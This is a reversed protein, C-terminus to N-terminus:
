SNALVTIARLIGGKAEFVGVPGHPGILLVEGDPSEIPVRQGDRARRAQDDDATVHPLDLVRDVPLVADASINEPTVARSVDLHGLATRRLTKVHAGCGLRDGIDAVLSRIYTGSSCRVRLGFEPSDFSTPELEYVTVRRPQLEVAEGRAAKKYARVGAVKVASVAPPTQEIAGTFEPLLARLAQETADVPRTDLVQGAADLTSTSVGLVGTTEYTKPMRQVYSLLRTAPGIGLVILGSAPPDLTGAHGVRRTGLARRAMSVIDHSTPGPPKDVLLFGIVPRSNL